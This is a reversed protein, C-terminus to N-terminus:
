MLLSRRKVEGIVSMAGDRTICGSSDVDLVEYMAQVMNKVDNSSCRKDLVEAAVQQMVGLEDQTVVHNLTDSAVFRVVMMDLPTIYGKQNSDAVAFVNDVVLDAVQNGFFEAARVRVEERTLVGDSDIDIEDFSGMELWLLSAFVEVVV